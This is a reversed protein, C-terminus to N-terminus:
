ILPSIQEIIPHTGTIIPLTGVILSESNEDLCDYLCTGEGIFYVM